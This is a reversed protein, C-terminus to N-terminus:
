HTQNERREGTHGLKTVASQDTTNHSRTVLPGYGSPLRAGVSQIAQRDGVSRAPGTLSVTPPHGSKTCVWVRDVEATERRHTAWRRGIPSRDAILRCDIPPFLAGSRRDFHVVVHHIKRKRRKYDGVFQHKSLSIFLVFPYMVVPHRRPYTATIVAVRCECQHSLQM